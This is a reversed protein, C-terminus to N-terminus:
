LVVFGNDDTAALGAEGGPVEELLVASLEDDEVAALADTVAPPAAPVRQPEIRRRAAIPQGSHREWRRARRIRGRDRHGVVELGIRGPVVQGNRVVAREM